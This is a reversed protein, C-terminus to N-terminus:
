AGEKRAGPASPGQFRNEKSWKRKELLFHFSTKKKKLKKGEKRRMGKQTYRTM